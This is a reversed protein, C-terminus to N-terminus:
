NISKLLFISRTFPRAILASVRQNEIVEEAADVVTTSSKLRTEVRRYSM